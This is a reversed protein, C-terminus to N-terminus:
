YRCSLLRSANVIQTLKGAKKHMGYFLALYLVFALVANTIFPLPLLNNYTLMGSVFWAILGSFVTTQLYTGKRNVERSVVFYHALM